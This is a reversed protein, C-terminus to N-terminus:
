TIPCKEGGMGNEHFYSMITKVYNVHLSIATEYRPLNCEGTKLINDVIRGMMESVYPFDFQIIEFSEGPKEPNICAKRNEEDICMLFQDTQLVINISRYSDHNCCIEFQKCKGVGGKFSGYCEKYGERKSEVIPTQLCSEELSFSDQDTLFAILDLFHIGNCCLGWEGGSIKISFESVSRMREKLQKYGGTERRICNIWANIHRNKFQEYAWYYDSEEQFLVKELILNKIQVDNDFLRELVSRRAGSTTAIACLDLREPLGSVDNHFRYGNSAFEDSLRSITNEDSDVVHVEYKECFPSLGQLYRKGINGAGIVAITKM